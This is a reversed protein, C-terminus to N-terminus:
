VFLAAEATLGPGFGLAVCPRPCGAAQLREIIFLVTPSSMNGCTALIERSTATASRPLGLAEEVASLIRPGGPHVAWSGVDEIKVDQEALWAELWPKLHEKIVGPVASSLYMEFGGDGIRWTMEDTSNPILCSGTAAIRWGLDAGSAAPAPGAEIVLAAAGDAFVANGVARSPEWEFCYHLSCLEVACLLVRSSPRARVIADAVQMGNIAGHCGMFGVHVREVTRPLGLGEILAVDIGPAFFGTCSVTVLHTITTAEKKSAALAAASARLALPPAGARYFEMRQGTTPGNRLLPEIVELPGATGEPEPAGGNGLAFADADLAMAGAALPAVAGDHAAQGAAAAIPQNLYDFAIKHPLATYRQRVGSRRYLVRILSREAETRCCIQQALDVAEDQTMSHEPLATGLGTVVPTGFNSPTM